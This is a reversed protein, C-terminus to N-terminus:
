KQRWALNLATRDLDRASGPFRETYGNQSTILLGSDWQDKSVQGKTFM